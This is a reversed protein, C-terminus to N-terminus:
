QQHWPSTQTQWPELDGWPLYKIVGVDLDMLLIFLFLWDKMWMEQEQYLYELLTRALTDFGIEKRCVARPCHEGFSM